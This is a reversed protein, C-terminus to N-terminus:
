GEVQLMMYNVVSLIGRKTNPRDKMFMNFGFTDTEVFWTLGSAREAHLRDSILDLQKKREIKSQFVLRDNSVMQELQNRLDCDHKMARLYLNESTTLPLFEQSCYFLSWPFVRASSMWCKSEHCIQCFKAVFSSVVPGGCFGCFFDHDTWLLVGCRGYCGNPRTPFSATSWDPGIPWILIGSQEPKKSHYMVHHPIYTM